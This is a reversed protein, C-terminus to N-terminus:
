NQGDTSTDKGRTSVVVVGECHGRELVTGLVSNRLKVLLHTRKKECETM